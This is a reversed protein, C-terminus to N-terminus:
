KSNISNYNTQGKADLLQTPDSSPAASWNNLSQVNQYNYRQKQEEIVLLHTSIFARYKEVFEDATITASQDPLRSEPISISCSLNVCTHCFGPNYVNHVDLFAGKLNENTTEGKYVLYIHYFCLSFLSWTCVVAFMDIIFATANSLLYSGTSDYKKTRYDESLVVTCTTVTFLGYLTIFLIFRYFYKYNRKAICNGVWPCHHDFIEVCNQCSNCHKSRPPRYINCTECFKWGLPGATVAGDPLVARVHADNRPLIGPEIISSMWLNYYCYALLVIGFVDIYFYSECIQPIVTYFLFLSPLMILVNTFAFFKADSGMMVTGDCFFYNNGQWDEHRKFSSADSLMGSQLLFAPGHTWGAYGGCIVYWWDNLRAIVIFLSRRRIIAELKSDQRMEKFLRLRPCQKIPNFVYVKCKLDSDSSEIDTQNTASRLLSTTLPNDKKALMIPM